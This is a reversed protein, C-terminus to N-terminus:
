HENQFHFRCKFGYETVILNKCTACNNKEECFSVSVNHLDLLIKDVEDKTITGNLLRQTTEEITKKM